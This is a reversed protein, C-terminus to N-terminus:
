LQMLRVVGALDDGVFLWRREPVWQLDSCANFLARDIPGVDGYQQYTKPVIGVKGAITTIIGTEGDVKRVTSTLWECLYLDGTTIDYQAAGPGLLPADLAPGGDGNAVLGLTANVNKKGAVITSNGTLSDIKHVVGLNFDPVYIDFGPNTREVLQVRSPGAGEMKWLTSIIGTKGDVKRVCGSNQDPIYLDGTAQDRELGHPYNLLAESAPGGDGAYGAKGAQGVVSSILKTEPDVYRIANNMSDIIYIGGNDLNFEVGHLNQFNADSAPGGDGPNVCEAPCGICQRPPCVGHSHGAVDMVMGTEPDVKRVFFDGAYYLTQEIPHWKSSGLFRLQEDIGLVGEPSLSLECMASLNAITMGVTSKSIVNTTWGVQPPAAGGLSGPQLAKLDVSKKLQLLSAYDRNDNSSDSGLCLNASALACFAACINVIKNLDM